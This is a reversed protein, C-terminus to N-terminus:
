EGSARPAPAKLLQAIARYAPKPQYKGDLITAAGRGKSFGPIWNHADTFGWVQYGHCNPSDLALQLLDRYVDAQRDLDAANAPILGARGDSVPMAVDLETVMFAFGAAQLRQANQYHADGPKISDGVSQHYQMGAGTVFVGQEKLWKLIDLVADSKYGLGEAGYENLYLEADPDAEHAYQFALKLFEPGLKRFWFSDRLHFRNQNAPNDDIAENVVDWAFIKGKYRGVLTHIYDSLYKRAQDPTIQAEQRRLWEPLTYGDDRAYVLVHGRVQMHHAQAWGTHGPAGVLWDANSWDYQDPGTWIAPPKLQNEPEIMDFEKAMVDAYTGADANARLLELAGATGFPLHRRAALTRLPPTTGQAMAPVALSLGVLV